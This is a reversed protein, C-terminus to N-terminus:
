GLLLFSSSWRATSHHGERSSPHPSNTHRSPRGSDVALDGMLNNWRTRSDWSPLASSGIGSLLALGRAVDVSGNTCLRFHKVGVPRNSFGVDPSRSPSTRKTGSLRCPAAGLVQTPGFDLVRLEHRANIKIVSLERASRNSLRRCTKSAKNRPYKEVKGAGLRSRVVNRSVSPPLEAASRSASREDSAYDIPWLQKCVARFGPLSFGPM